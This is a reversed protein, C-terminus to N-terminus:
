LPNVGANSKLCTKCTGTIELPKDSLKFQNKQALEKLANKLYIANIEAAQGCKECLLLQVHPPHHVPTECAIYANKSEVRHILQYKQLFDLARYVTMAEAKPYNKRLLRLLEYATLHIDYSYILKLLDSRIPTLRAHAQTCLLEAQKLREELLTKM